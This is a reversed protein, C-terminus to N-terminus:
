TSMLQGWFYNTRSDGFGWHWTPGGSAATVYFTDGVNCYLIPDYVLTSDSAISNTLNYFYAVTPWELVTNRFMQLTM